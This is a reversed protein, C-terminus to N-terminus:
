VYLCFPPSYSSVFFLSLPSEASTTTPYPSQSLLTVPYANSRLIYLLRRFHFTNRFSTYKNFVIRNSFSAQPTNRNDDTAWEIGGQPADLAPKEIEITQITYLPNPNKPSSTEKVTMKVAIVNGQTTIMPAVFRHIALITPENNKDPHTEDLYAHQFLQDANAVALAHDPASTSKNVASQNLMKEINTKSVTAIIGTDTNKIPTGAYGEAQREAEAFTTAKRLPTAKAVAEWDGFWKKFEKDTGAGM